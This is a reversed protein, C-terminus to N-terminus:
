KLATQKGCIHSSLHYVDLHNKRRRGLNLAGFIATGRSSSRSPATFMNCGKAISKLLKDSKTKCLEEQRAVSELVM